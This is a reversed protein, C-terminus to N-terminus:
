IVSRCLQKSDVPMAASPKSLWGHVLGIGNVGAASKLAVVIGIRDHTLNRQRFENQLELRISEIEFQRQVPQHDLLIFRAFANVKRMQIKGAPPNITEIGGDQATVM